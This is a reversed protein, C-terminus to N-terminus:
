SKYNVKHCSKDTRKLPGIIQERIQDIVSATHIENLLLSNCPDLPIHIYFRHRSAQRRSALLAAHLLNYALCTIYAKHLSKLYDVKFFFFDLKIESNIGAIYNNVHCKSV